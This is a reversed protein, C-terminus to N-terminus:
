ERAQAPGATAIPFFLDPDARLCAADDRWNTRLGEHGIADPAGQPIM